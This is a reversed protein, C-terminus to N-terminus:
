RATMLLLASQKKSNKHTLTLSPVLYTHQSQNLNSNLTTVAQALSNNQPKSALSKQPSVLLSARANAAQKSAPIMHATKTTWLTRKQRKVASVSKSTNDVDILRKANKIDEAILFNAPENQSSM